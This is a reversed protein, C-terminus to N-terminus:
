LNEFDIQGGDSFHVTGSQDSGLDFVGTHASSSLVTGDALEVWWAGAGAPAGASAVELTDIWSGGAGGDLQDAGDGLAYYFTDSGSDGILTDDGLGGTLRDSNSGGILTDRGTGGDLTDRGDGGQLFDDGGNGYALTDASADGATRVIRNDAESGSVIFDYNGSISVNEVNRVTAFGGGVAPAYMGDVGDVRGSLTLSGGVDTVLTDVGEGGDYLVDGSRVELTDDGGEGYLEDAGDDGRLYDHGAGGRLVDDGNNGTLNDGGEGGQIVDNGDGGSLTDTGAGGILTDDGLGGMLVDDGAEGQLTDAGDYGSIRDSEPTGDLADAGNTGTLTTSVDTVRIALTLDRSLGGADTVRAVVTHSPSTEFDLRAADAVRIVGSDADISFRGDASDVLSFVLGSDQEADSAALTAVVDGVEAGESVAVELREAATLSVADLRTGSWNPQDGVERFELTNPGEAAIVQLEARDWAITGTPDYEGILVGNWYVEVQVWGVNIHGTYDFSLDYREGAVLDTFTQAIAGNPGGSALELHYSGESSSWTYGAGNYDGRIIDVGDGGTVTWGTVTPLNWAPGGQDLVGGQFQEFGGNVVHDLPTAISALELSPATNIPPPPAPPPEEV